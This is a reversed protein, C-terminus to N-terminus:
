KMSIMQCNGQKSLKGAFDCLSIETFNWDSLSTFNNNLIGSSGRVVTTVVVSPAVVVTTVVEGSSVVVSFVVTM